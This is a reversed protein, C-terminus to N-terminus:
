EVGRRIALLLFVVVLGVIRDDTTAYLVSCSIATPCTSV